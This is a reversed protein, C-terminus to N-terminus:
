EERGKTVAMCFCWQLRRATSSERNSCCARWWWCFRAEWSWVCQRGFWGSGMGFRQSRFWLAPTRRACVIALSDSWGRLGCKVSSGEPQLYLARFHLLARKLLLKTGEALAASFSRHALWTWYGQVYGSRERTHIHTHTHTQAHACMHMKTTNHPILIITQRYLWTIDIPKYLRYFSIERQSFSPYKDTQHLCNFLTLM